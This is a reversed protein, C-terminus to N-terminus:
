QLYLLLNISESLWSSLVSFCVLGTMTSSWLSMWLCFCISIPLFVKDYPRYISATFLYQNSLVCNVLVRISVHAQHQYDALIEYDIMLFILNVWSILWQNNISSSDRILIGFDFHYIKRSTKSHVAKIQKVWKGASVKRFYSNQLQDHLKRTMTTSYLALFIVM